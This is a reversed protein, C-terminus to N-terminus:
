KAWTLLQSCRNELWNVETSDSPAAFLKSGLGVSYVGAQRWTTISLETTDVGGTPMFKLNPFLPKIAKLFNPGLTDGPFLKVLKVELEEALAIETPTMCGPIWELHYSKAVEAIERKIIPSVLFETGAEAFEVAQQATKITGIGLKLDPLFQNKYDLLIRFNELAKAGRNVFEFVRIGGAYCKKVVDICEQPDDNYYVPIVPYKEIIDLINM